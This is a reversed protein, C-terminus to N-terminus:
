KEQRKTVKKKNEKNSKSSALLLFAVPKSCVLQLIL